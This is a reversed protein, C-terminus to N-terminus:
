WNPVNRQRRAEVPHRLNWWAMRRWHRLWRRAKIRLRRRWSFTRLREEYQESSVIQFDPVGRHHCAARASLFRREVRDREASLNGEHLLQPRRHVDKDPKGSSALRRQSSADGDFSTRDSEAKILPHKPQEPQSEIVLLIRRAQWRASPEDEVRRRLYECGPSINDEVPVV